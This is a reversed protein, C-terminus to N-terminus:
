ICLLDGFLAFALWGITVLAVGLAACVSQASARRPGSRWHRAKRTTLNM